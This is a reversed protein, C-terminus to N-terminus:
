PAFYHVSLSFNMQNLTSSLLLYKIYVAEGPSLCSSKQMFSLDENDYHLYVRQSNTRELKQKGTQGVRVESEQEKRVSPSRSTTKEM